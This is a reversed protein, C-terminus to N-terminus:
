LMDAEARPGRARPLAAGAPAPRKWPVVADLDGGYLARVCDTCQRPGHPPPHPPSAPLSTIKCCGRRKKRAARVGRGAGRVDVVASAVVMGVRRRRTGHAHMASAVHTAQAVAAGRRASDRRAHAGWAGRGVEHALRAPRAALWCATGSVYSAPTSLRHPKSSAVHDSERKRMALVPMTPPQIPVDLPSHRTVDAM